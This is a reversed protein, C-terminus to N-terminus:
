GDLFIRTVKAINASIEPGKKAEEKETKFQTVNTIKAIKADNLECSFDKNSKRNTRYKRVKRAGLKAKKRELDQINHQIRDSCHQDIELREQRARSFITTM